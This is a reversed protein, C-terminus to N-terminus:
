KKKKKKKSKVKGFEKSMVKDALSRGKWKKIDKSKVKGSVIDSSTFAFSNGAFDVGQYLPQVATYSIKEIENLINKSKINYSSRDKKLSEIRKKIIKKFSM